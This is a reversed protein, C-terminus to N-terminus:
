RGSLRLWAGRMLPKLFHRQDGRALDIVERAAQILVSRDGALIHKAYLAGRGMVYGDQLDRLAIPDRRGHAHLIRITPDFRLRLGLRLMRHFLDLDEASRALSGAGLRPDFMGVRRFAAARASFNCGILHTLAHTGDEIWAADRATRISTPLDAPDHLGVWGGIADAPEITRYADDIRTLWDPEVLCDDDTFAIIEGRARVLGANRAVALGVRREVIVDLPLDGQAVYKGLLDATGDISGNDVVIAQWSPSFGAGCSALAALCRALNDRRDRTAIVVSIRPPSTM